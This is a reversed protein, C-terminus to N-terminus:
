KVPRRRRIIGVGALGVAFLALSAPEPAPVISVSDLLAAPPLSDPGPGQALFSLIGALPGSIEAATATFTIADTQWDSFGHSDIYLVPTTTMITTGNCPVSSPGCGVPASVTQSMANTLLTGGLTVQWASATKGNWDTGDFSRFQAAAYDFSLVYSQGACLTTATNCSSSNGTPLTQMIAGHFSPDGDAALYNSDPNFPSTAPLGNDSNCVAVGCPSPNNPGWLYVGSAGMADAGKPGYIFAIGGGQTWPAVGATAFSMNPTPTAFEGNGVLNANSAGSVALAAAFFGAVAMQKLRSIKRNMEPRGKSCTVFNTKEQIPDSQHQERDPRREQGAAVVPITAIQPADDRGRLREALATEGEEAPWAHRAAYLPYALRGVLSDPLKADDWLGGALGRAAFVHTDQYILAAGWPSITARFPSVSLM